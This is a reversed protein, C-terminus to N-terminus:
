PPRRGCTLTEVLLTGGFGGRASDNGDPPPTEAGPLGSWRPPASQLPAGRIFSISCHFAPSGRGFKSSRSPRVSRSSVGPSYGHGRCRSDRPFANEIACLSPRQSQFQKPAQPQPPSSTGRKSFNSFRDRVSAMRRRRSSAMPLPAGACVVRTLAGFTGRLGRRGCGEKSYGASRCV